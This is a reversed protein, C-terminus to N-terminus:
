LIIDNNGFFDDQNKNSIYFSTDQAIIELFAIITKYIFRRSEPEITKITSIILPIKKIVDIFNIQLNNFNDVGLRYFVDYITDIFLKREKDNLNALWKNLSNDFMKSFSSINDLYVFDNNEILWSFPDHQFVWIQNSKVVKFDEQTEMLLGFFSSQPITKHIKSIIKQYKKDEFIKKRFGPGDHSFVKEIKDQYKSYISSYVALNGGKSHGGVYIKHKPYKDIIKDLYKKAEIQSPVEDLFAMNLDEKWGVLTSDTGRFAVYILNNPFLFCNAAFQKESIKEKIEVPYYVKLHNYRKGYFCLFFLQKLKSSISSDNKVQNIIIDCFFNKAATYKKFKLYALESCILSDVPNFPLENFSRNQNRKLYTLLNDM